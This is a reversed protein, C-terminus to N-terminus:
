IGEAGKPNRAKTEDGIDVFGYFVFNFNVWNLLHGSLFFDIKNSLKYRQPTKGRKM